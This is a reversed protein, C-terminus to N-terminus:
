IEKYAIKKLSCVNIPLSNLTSPNDPLLVLDRAEPFFHHLHPAPLHPSISVITLIYYPILYLHQSTSFTSHLCLLHPSLSHHASSKQISDNPCGRPLHCKLLASFTVIGPPLMGPIFVPAFVFVRLSSATVPDRDVGKPEM